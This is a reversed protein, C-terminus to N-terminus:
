NQMTTACIHVWSYKPQPWGGMIEQARMANTSLSLFHHRISLQFGDRERERERERKKRDTKHHETPPKPAIKQEKKPDFLYM